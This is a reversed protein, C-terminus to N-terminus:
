DKEKDVLTKYKKADKLMMELCKIVIKRSEGGPTMGNQTWGRSKGHIIYEVIDYWPEGNLIRKRVRYHWSM